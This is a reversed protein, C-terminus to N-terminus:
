NEKRARFGGHLQYYKILGLILMVTYLLNAAAMWYQSTILGYIMLVVDGFLSIFMGPLYIERTLFWFGVVAGVFGIMELM